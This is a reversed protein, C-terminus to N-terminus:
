TVAVAQGIFQADDLQKLVFDAVDARAIRGARISRDTGVRYQGTRPGDTLGGPRVITWDLNSAQILREQEDKAAIIAKLLTKMMLKFYGPVQDRSDGVGLSTVAILRRVGHEAMAALISETGRAEIPAEGRRTGLICIVADVGDICAGVAGVDLVDGQIITLGADDASGAVVREPHRALAKVEHGLALAQALAQQGTGGTAGFLAIKM